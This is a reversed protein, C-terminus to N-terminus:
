RGEAQCRFGSCIFSVSAWEFMCRSQAFVSEEKHNKKVRSEHLHIFCFVHARKFIGDFCQLLRNSQNWFAWYYQCEDDCHAICWKVGYYVDYMWMMYKSKALFAIKFGGILHQWWINVNKHFYIFSLMGLVVTYIIESEILFSKKLWDNWIAKQESISNNWLM